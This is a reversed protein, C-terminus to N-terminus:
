KPDSGRSHFHLAPVLAFWRPSAILASNEAPFELSVRKTNPNFVLHYLADLRFFVIGRPHEDNQKAFQIGQDFDLSRADQAPFGPM